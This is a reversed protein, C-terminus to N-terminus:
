ITNKLKSKTKNYSLIDPLILQIAIMIERSTLTSNNNCRWLQRAEPALRELIDTSELDKDTFSYYILAKMHSIAKKSILINPYGIKLVNSIVTSLNKGRYNELIISV